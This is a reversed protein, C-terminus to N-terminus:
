IERVVKKFNYPSHFINDMRKIAVKQSTHINKALVVEGFTGEGLPKLVKYNSEISSWM